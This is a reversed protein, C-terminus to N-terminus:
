RGPRGARGWAQPDAAAQQYVDPDAAKAQTAFGAPPPFVPTGLLQEIREEPLSPPTSM